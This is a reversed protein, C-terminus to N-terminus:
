PQSTARTPMRSLAIATAGGVALGGAAVMTLYLLAGPIGRIDMARLLTDARSSVFGAVAWGIGSALIWFRTSAFHAALLRSQWVGAVVGGIAICVPLSYPFPMHLFVAVDSPIFPVTLGVISSWIWPALKGLMERLVRAQMFGVTAGVGMGVLSQSGGIGVAEGLLALAAIAPIALLWGFFTARVWSRTRAPVSDKV